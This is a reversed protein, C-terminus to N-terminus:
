TTPHSSLEDLYFESVSYQVQEGRQRLFITPYQASSFTFSQAKPDLTVGFIKELARTFSVRFQTAENVNEWWSDWVLQKRQDRTSEYLRLSDAKWGKAARVGDERSVIERIFSRIFYEGLVEAYVVENSPPLLASGPRPASYAAKSTRALYEKPYLIERTTRPPNKFARDIGAAGAQNKVHQVFFKGYDYPFEFQRRLLEPLGCGNQETNAAGADLGEMAHSGIDNNYRDQVLVADGEALASLALARDSASNSADRLASLGFYQDQIAHVSEHIPVDLPTKVWHPFVIAAREPHYFALVDSGYDGAICREYDYNQPITGLMKSAIGEYHVRQPPNDKLLEERVLRQFEQRSVEICSIPRKLPLERLLSAERAADAVAACASPIPKEQAIIQSPVILCFVSLLFGVISPFM